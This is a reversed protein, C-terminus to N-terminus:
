DGRKGFLPSFDLPFWSKKKFNIVTVKDLKEGEVNIVKVPAKDDTDMDTQHCVSDVLERLKDTMSVREEKCRQNFEDYLEDPIRFSIVKSVM